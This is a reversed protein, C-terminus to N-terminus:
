KRAKRTRRAPAPKAVALEITAAKELWYNLSYGARWPDGKIKKTITLGHASFCAESSEEDLVLPHLPDPKPDGCDYSLFFECAYQSINTIIKDFDRCHDLVNLCMLFDAHLGSIYDELPMPYVTAKDLDCWPLSAKYADALPEIAYLKAKFYRSRLRPGCGADIVSNFQRTNFGCSQLYASTDSKFLEDQARWQNAKHWELESSQAQRWSDLTTLM